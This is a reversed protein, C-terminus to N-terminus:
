SEVRIRSEQYRIGDEKIGIRQALKERTIKPDKKMTIKRATEEISAHQPKRMFTLDKIKLGPVLGGPNTIEVRDHFIHVQLFGSCWSIEWRRWRWPWAPIWTASQVQFKM